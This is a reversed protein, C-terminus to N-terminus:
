NLYSDINIKRSSDNAQRVSNLIEDLVTRDLLKGNIVVSNISKTNSIDLLPNKNLLVLNAKRGVLIEGANNDLWQSPASTASRLIQSSTMGARNLSILEDHLSFGPVTPPLNADTGAMIKIGKNVLNNLIVRCAEAYTQWYIKSKARREDNWDEPWKYRNVEPLWGIGRPTMTSWESIGPNEYELEVESLVNDLEVKQRIFSEVLWLTTTVAIDQTLLDNAIEDSRKDVFVLFEDATESSFGSGDWQLGLKATYGSFERNLVNMLEELHAIGNQKFYIDSLEM